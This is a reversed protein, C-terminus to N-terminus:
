RDRATTRIKFAVREEGFNTLTIIKGVSQKEGGGVPPVLDVSLQMKAPPRPSIDAGLGGPWAARRGAAQSASLLQL